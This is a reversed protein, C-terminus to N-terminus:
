FVKVRPIVEAGVVHIPEIHALGRISGLATQIGAGALAELEEVVRDVREGDRGVDITYM